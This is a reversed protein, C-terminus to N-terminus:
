VLERLVVTIETKKGDRVVTLRVEKGPPDTRFRLRLAPLSMENVSQGDVAVIKDGVMLGATAAPGGKPADMIEFAEGVINLWMGSRDFVDPKSFNANPEFIIKQNEYDFTVNFRKLVGAGVNGAVYPDTFAGSQQLSLTTVPNRVEVDGLWLVEARTVQSRVSGGVFHAELDHEKVFPSFLSLSSRAGTDIDFKGPIGDISGVVQPTHGSFQFPVVKGNGGYEFASPVTLTILSREYDVMVVFRKFVEYGVIGLFPVGEINGFSELPFAMFLQNSLTIDGITMTEVKMFSVDESEEGVGRGQVAGEPELGLEAAVTPTVINAGGTDLLLRFPGQGNIIVNLYIHNNILEFPIRTSTKGEAFVFDAPPPAPMNFLGEDMEENFEISELTGFMDYQTEGNTSRFGFPMMVGNVERYDTFFSTRTEMATEEVTRHALWTEADFWTDYPRGGEPTIRVIHYRRSDEEEEGTYEMEAPWREPYWYALCRRYAENATGLRNDDGEEPRVQGSGDVSWATEGDFGEGGTIPGIAYSNRFRGTLVDDWGEATGELGSTSVKVTFHSNRVVDWADGGAAEKAKALIEAPTTQAGAM